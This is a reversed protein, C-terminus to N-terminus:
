ATYQDRERWRRHRLPSTDPLVCFTSSKRTSQSLSTTRSFTSCNPPIAQWVPLRLQKKWPSPSEPQCAM